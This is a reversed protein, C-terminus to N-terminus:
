AAVGPLRYAGLVRAFWVEDIYHEVVKRAQMYTHVIRAEGAGLDGESLFGVHQPELDFRMLLVDGPKADATPECHARLLSGMLDDGTPARGYTTYDFDSLGLAHAVGIILGACDVGVDKVRGQHHFPTGIWSRAERVIADRSTM